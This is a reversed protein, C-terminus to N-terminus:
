PKTYLYKVRDNFTAQVAQVTADSNWEKYLPYDSNSAIASVFICVCKNTRTYTYTYTYM